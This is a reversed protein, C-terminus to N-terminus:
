GSLQYVALVLGRYVRFQQLSTTNRALAKSYDIRQDQESQTAVSDNRIGKSSGSGYGYEATWSSRLRM